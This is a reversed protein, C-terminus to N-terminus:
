VKDFAEFANIIWDDGVKQMGVVVDIYKIKSDETGSQQQIQLSVKAAKLEFDFEDIKKSVVRGSVGVYDGAINNEKQLGAIWEDLLAQMDVSIITNLKHLSEYSDHNSYSSVIESFLTARKLVAQREIEESTFVKEKVVTNSKEIGEGPKYPQSVDEPIKEIPTIEDNQLYLYILAGVLIIIIIIAITLLKNTKM